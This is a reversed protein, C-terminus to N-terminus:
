LDKGTLSKCETSYEASLKYDKIIGVLGQRLFYRNQIDKYNRNTQDFYFYTSATVAVTLPILFSNIQSNLYIGEFVIMLFTVLLSLIFYIWRKNRFKINITM